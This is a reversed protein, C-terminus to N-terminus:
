IFLFGFIIWLIADRFLFKIFDAHSGCAVKELGISSRDESYIRFYLTKGQFDQDLPFLHFPDETFKGQGPVNVSKFRYVRKSELYAECAFRVRAIM